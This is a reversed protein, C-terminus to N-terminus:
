MEETQGASLENMVVGEAQGVAILLLVGDLSGTLLCECAVVVEAEVETGADM